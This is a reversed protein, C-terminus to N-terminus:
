WRLTTCVEDRSDFSDSEEEDDEDDDGKSDGSPAKNTLLLSTFARWDHLVHAGDLGWFAEAVRHPVDLSEREVLTKMVDALSRLQM